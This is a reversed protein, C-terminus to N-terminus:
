AAPVADVDFALSIDAGTLNAANNTFVVSENGDYYIYINVTLVSSSTLTTNNGSISTQGSTSTLAAFGGDSTTIIIKAASVDTGGTKQAITPTVKLNNAGNAGVAVTLYVTKQIVYGTFATLQVASGAKMASATADEAKATYWNTVAAATATNTVQVGATSIATGDVKNHGDAVTLYAVEGSTLAPASPYLKADNDAVTLATTTVNETQIGAATTASSSILLYTDDSKAKVQMGTATVQTNMSFWAYTSTGLMAAAILLMCLAPILKKM